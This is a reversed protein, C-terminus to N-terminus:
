ATALYKEPAKVFRAKCHPCCFYYTTDALVHSHQATAITVEMSCVPDIAFTPQALPVAIDAHMTFLELNLAEANRRRQVIEAMISLAIEDGRRAQIDLGAPAKLALMDADSLGSDRLYQRVSEARRPSAVLGVYAANARLAALIATEDFQGHTAIIVYTMPTVHAKLEDLSTLRVDAQALAPSGEPDIAIVQYNMAKGLHLLSQAVPLNGVVLLRPRPHHPEIYIELTGGSFCTMAVDTLGPRPVQSAPDASLRIMRPKDDRLAAKAEKVVTPQACSGGIWGQLVGQATIIARDGPKGSTPAEARVVIATVFPEGRQTLAAATTYFDDFM